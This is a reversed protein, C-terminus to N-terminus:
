LKGYHSVQVQYGRDNRLTFTGVQRNGYPQASIVPTGQQDLIVEPEREHRIAVPEAVYRYTGKPLKEEVRFVNQLNESPPFYRIDAVPNPVRGYFKEYPRVASFPPYSEPITSYDLKNAATLQQYLKEPFTDSIDNFRIPSYSIKGAVNFPQQYPGRYPYNVHQLQDLNSIREADLRAFQSSVGTLPTLEPNTQYPYPLRNLRYARDTSSGLYDTIPSFTSYLGFSSPNILLSKQYPNFLVPHVNPVIGSNPQGLSHVLPDYKEQLIDYVVPKVNLSTRPVYGPNYYSVGNKPDVFVGINLEKASPEELSNSGPNLQNISSVSIPSYPAKWPHGNILLDSDNSDDKVGVAFGVDLDRSSPEQFIGTGRINSLDAINRRSVEHRREPLSYIKQVLQQLQEGNLRCHTGQVCASVLLLLVFKTVCSMSAIDSQPLHQSCIFTQVSLIVYLQSAHPVDIYLINRLYHLVLISVCLDFFIRLSQM